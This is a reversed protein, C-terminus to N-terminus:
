IGFLICIAIYPYSQNKLPRLRAKHPDVFFYFAVYTKYITIGKFLKLIM